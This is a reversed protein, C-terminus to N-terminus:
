RQPHNKEQPPLRTMIYIWSETTTDDPLRAPIIERFYLRPYGELRDINQWYEISLTILEAQITTNGEKTYAPFGNGTDYLTGTVTCQEIKVANKCFHNNREGTM